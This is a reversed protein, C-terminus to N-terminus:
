GRVFLMEEPRIEGKALRDKACVHLVAHVFRKDHYLSDRKQNRMWNTLQLVMKKPFIVM